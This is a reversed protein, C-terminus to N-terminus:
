FNSIKLVVISSVVPYIRISTDEWVVERILVGSGLQIYMGVKYLVSHHM